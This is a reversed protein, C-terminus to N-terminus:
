LWSYVTRFVIRDVLKEKYLIHMIGLALAGDTGPLIPIFWDAMRGTQNKHVDIVVIKAGKKRAKQAIAVQHMNTSVANIGWFIFLKTETMDEPDTGYSGGM